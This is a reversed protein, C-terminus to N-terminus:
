RPGLELTLPGDRATWRWPLGRRRIEAAAPPWGSSSIWIERPALRELLPGLRPLDSGHHPLLLLRVPREPGKWAELSGALGEEEADGSLWLLEDQEELVLSRSGENGAGASGRVLWGRSVPGSWLQLVGPGALDLPAPAHPEREGPQAPDAGARLRPNLRECAWSWAGAHDREAHSLVCRVDGPDWDAVLPLLAGRGLGSRDRSGADFLWASGDPERVALCTGHGVDLAAVEARPPAATWPLLLVGALAAGARWRRARSLVEASRLAGLGLLALAVWAVFPRPPAIWPSLPLADFARALLVCAHSPLELWGGPLPLGVFAVLASAVLLLTTPVLLAVTSLVGTPCLEGFRALVLPATAVVAVSSAVLARRLARDALASAVRLWEPRARGWADVPALGPPGLRETALALLPGSCAILGLAAAYSLEVSLSAAARPDCACEVALAASWLTLADCRRAVHAGRSRPAFPVLAFVLAARLVPAEGGALPVYLAILPAALLDERARGGSLAAFLAALMRALPAFVLWSLLVVQTGSVVLLHYTGTRVYLDQEEPALLSTDGLLLACCLGRTQADELAELRARAASRLRALARGLHLFGAGPELRVVEDPLLERVPGAASAAFVNGARPDPRPGRAPQRLVPEPALEVEAGDEVVGPVLASARRAGGPAAREENEVLERVRWTGREPEDAAGRAPTAAARAAACLALALLVTAIRERGRVLLTAVVLLIFGAALALSPTLLDTSGAASGAAWALALGVLPRAPPTTSPRM